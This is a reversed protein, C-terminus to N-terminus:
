VCFNNCFNDFELCKHSTILLPLLVSEELIFHLYLVRLVELLLLQKLRQLWTLLVIRFGSNFLSCNLILRSPWHVLPLHAAAESVAKSLHRPLVACGVFAIPGLAKRLALSGKVVLVAVGVFALPLVVLAETITFVYIFVTCSINTVPFIIELTSLAYFYPGFAGAIFTGVFITFLLAEALICPGVTWKVRTVPVVVFNVANTLIHPFITAFVVALPFLIVHWSVANVDVVVTDSIFTLEKIVLLCPVTVIEPSISSLILAPPVAALLVANANEFVRLFALFLVADPLLALSQLPEVLLGDVFDVLLSVVVRLEEFLLLANVAYHRIGREIWRFAEQLLYCLYFSNEIQLGSLWISCNVLKGLKFVM